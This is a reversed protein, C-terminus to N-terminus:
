DVDVSGGDPCFDMQGESARAVGAVSMAFATQSRKVDVAFPLGEVGVVAAVQLAGLDIGALLKRRNLGPQAGLNSGCEWPIRISGKRRAIWGPSHAWSSPFCPSPDRGPSGTM